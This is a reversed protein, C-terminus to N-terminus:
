KFRLSHSEYIRIRLRTLYRVALENKTKARTSLRQPRITTKKNNIIFKQVISIDNTICLDNQSMNKGRHFTFETDCLNNNCSLGNVIIMNPHNLLLNILKKGNQNIIKDPNEKYHFKRKPFTNAIRANFDGFLVISRSKGFTDFIVSLSDFYEDSYYLSNTPPLYMVAIIINSDVIEAIVCDKLNMKLPKLKINTKMNVYIAVGGRPKKSAIPESRDVLYFGTPCKTRINFHTEALCILGKGHIMNTVDNSLFKNKVGNINWYFIEIKKSLVCTDINM